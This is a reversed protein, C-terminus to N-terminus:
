IEPNLGKRQAVGPKNQRGEHHSGHEQLALEVGCWGIRGLGLDPHDHRQYEAAHHEEERGAQHKVPADVVGYGNGLLAVDHMLEVLFGCCGFASQAEMGLVGYAPCGTWSIPHKSISICCPKGGGTGLMM